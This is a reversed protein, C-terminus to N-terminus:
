MEKYVIRILRSAPHVEIRVADGTQMGLDKLAENLPESHTQINVLPENSMPRTNVVDVVYGAAAAIAHTAETATVGRLSLDVRKEFGDPITTAQYFAQKHQADTMSEVALAERTKALIRLEDRAEISIKKLEQLAMSESISLKKPVPDLTSTGACGSITAVLAIPLAAKNIKINM